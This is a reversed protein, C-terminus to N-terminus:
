FAAQGQAMTAAGASLQVISTALPSRTQQAAKALAESGNALKNSGQQLGASADYLKRLDSGAAPKPLNTKVKAAESITQRM